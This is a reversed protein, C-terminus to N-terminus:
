VKPEQVGPGGQHDQVVSVMSPTLDTNPPDESM